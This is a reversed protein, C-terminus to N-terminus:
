APQHETTQVFATRASSSLWELGVGYSREGVRAVGCHRRNRGGLVAPTNTRCCLAPSVALPAVASREAARRKPQIQRHHLKRQPRRRTRRRKPLTSPVKPPTKNTRGGAVWVEEDGRSSIYNEVNWAVVRIQNEGGAIASPAKSLDINLTAQKTNPNQKLKDDRADALFEKGNVSVQVRGIGGGRNTLTVTLTSTGRVPAEYKVDPYLKPNEFKSVDRLPRGQLIKTLLGPECYREKLQALDIPESGVMWHVLKQANPSADFRGDPTVVAWDAKDLAILSALLEGGDVRWLKSTADLSGSILFKGDASFAVSTVSQSHGTLTRLERGTAVEWLKITNDESGSALTKGDASFAVSTVSQSHGTLTRLVRGTAVEWRPISNDRGGSALTKGDASFAVSNVSNLLKIPTFLDRGTAVEWLKITGQTYV